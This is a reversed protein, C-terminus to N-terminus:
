ISYLLLLFSIFMHMNFSYEIYSTPVRFVSTTFFYGIQLQNTEEYFVAFELGLDLTKMVTKGTHDNPRILISICFLIVECPYRWCWCTEEVKTYSYIQLNTCFVEVSRIFLIDTQKCSNFRRNCRRYFTRVEQWFLSSRISFIKIKFMLRSAVNLFM